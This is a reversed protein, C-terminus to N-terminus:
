ESSVARVGRRKARWCKACGWTFSGTCASQPRHGTESLGAAKPVGCADCFFSFTHTCEESLGLTDTPLVFKSAGFGPVGARAAIECLRARGRWEGVSEYQEEGTDPDIPHNVAGLAELRKEVIETPMREEDNWPPHSLLYGQERARELHPLFHEAMTLHRGSVDSLKSEFGGNGDPVLRREFAEIRKGMSVMGTDVWTTQFLEKVHEVTPSQTTSIRRNGIKVRFNKSRRTHFGRDGARACLLDMNLLQSARMLQEWGQGANRAVRSRDKRLPGCTAKAVSTWNVRARDASSPAASGFCELLERAGGSLNLQAAIAACGIRALFLLKREHLEKVHEAHSTRGDEEDHAEWDAAVEPSLEHM